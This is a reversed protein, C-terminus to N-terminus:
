PEGDEAIIVRSLNLTNFGEKKVPEDGEPPRASASRDDQTESGEERRGPFRRSLIQAIAHKYVLHTMGRSSVIVTFADFGRVTGVLTTGDLLVMKIESNDKRVQNLFSDQLNMSTKAM